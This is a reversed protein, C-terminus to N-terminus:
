QAVNFRAVADRTVSVVVFGTETKMSSLFAFQSMFIVISPFSGRFRPTVFASSFRAASYKAVRLEVRIDPYLRRFGSFAERIGDLDEKSLKEKGTNMFVHFSKRKFIAGYLDTTESM